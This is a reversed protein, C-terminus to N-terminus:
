RTLVVTTNARELEERHLMEKGFIAAFIRVHQERLSSDFLERLGKVTDEDVHLDDTRVGLAKLLVNEAPTAKSPNQATKRRM